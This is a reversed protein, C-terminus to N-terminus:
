EVCVGHRRECRYKSGQAKGARQVGGAVACGEQCWSMKIITRSSAAIAPERSGSIDFYVVELPMYGTASGGRRPECAGKRVICHLRDYGAALPM